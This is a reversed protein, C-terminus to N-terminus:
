SISGSRCVMQRLDVMTGDLSAYTFVGHKARPTLCVDDPPVKLGKPKMVSRMYEIM